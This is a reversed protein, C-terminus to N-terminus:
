SHLRRAMRCLSQPLLHVKTAYIATIADKEVSYRMELHIYMGKKHVILPISNPSRIYELQRPSLPEQDAVLGIAEGNLSGPCSAAAALAHYPPLPGRRVSIQFYYCRSGASTSPRAHIPGSSAEVRTLM